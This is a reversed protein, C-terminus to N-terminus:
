RPTAPKALLAPDISTDTLSELFAILDSTEQESLQLPKLLNDQAANSLPSPDVTSYHHLVDRLTAFHGKHMYPAVLAVNRLTPTKMQGLNHLTAVLFRSSQARPGHRDDSFPGSAGFPDAQLAAIGAYRGPDSPGQEAPLAIDHFEGDSFNPGAHCLHCKGRGVFLRLGAQAADGLAARKSADGGRLGEVFVDFASHRSLMRREYAELAKGVNAFSRDVGGESGPEPLPGFVGEYAARLPADARLLGAVAVRSGAMELPHEIPKLAQSWLSDARGDWFLWRDYAVNWLSLTHRTGQGTAEFVRRGDSLGKQPDHCSSCAFRGSGSLRTEFFLFQGLRAAAPDDAARNTEDAPPPPLPSHSLIRGLEEATFEVSPAGVLAAGAPTTGTEGWCDTGAPIFPWVALAAALLRKV